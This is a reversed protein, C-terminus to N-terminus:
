IIYFMITLASLVLGIISLIRGNSAKPKGDYEGTACLELARKSKVIGLIGFVIGLVGGLIGFVLALIGYTNADRADKNHLMQKHQPTSYNERESSSNASGNNAAGYKENDANNTKGFSDSTEFDKEFEKDFEKDFDGSFDAQAFTEEEFDQRESSEDQPRDEEKLKSGCYGCYIDGEEVQSGCNSCYKM